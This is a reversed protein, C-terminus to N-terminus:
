RVGHTWGPMNIYYRLAKGQGQTWLLGHRLLDSLDRTATAKSVGTMKQYKEANLGGLFGGDGEDLLRQLVKRQRESLPKTAHGAWFRAKGIAGDIVASTRECALALQGAFWAVWATVEGTGHQAANLAAYYAARAELLQRSVSYLRLNGGQDQALAMDIIARGVRGNGDEFPHITEFWLHAIAARALGDMVSHGATPTTSAFWALFRDMEAPVLHSPPAQYHVKEKGRVGSVILMPDAHERYRGVAIKQIGSTGGPFLASHWRKLRDHDLAAKFNSAADDVVEVLADVSRNHPAADGLGLRRMVSSRVAAPDLPQGEIASTALVEAALVDSAIEQASALGISRAKGEVEGQKKRADALPAAAAQADFTLTPWTQRQWVYRVSATVM